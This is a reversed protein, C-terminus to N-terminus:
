SAAREGDVRGQLLTAGAHLGDLVRGSVVDYAVRWRGDLAPLDVGSGPKAPLAAATPHSRALFVTTFFPGVLFVIFVLIWFIQAALSPSGGVAGFFMLFAPVLGGAFAKRRLERARELRGLGLPLLVLGVFWGFFFVFGGILLGILALIEVPGAGRHPTIGSRAREEHPSPPQTALDRM